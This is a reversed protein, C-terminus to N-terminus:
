ARVSVFNSLRNRVFEVSRETALERDDFSEIELLFPVDGRAEKALIAAIAPIDVDGEGIATGRVCLATVWGGTIKPMEPDTPPYMKMDKVHTTVTYPALKRAAEVPEEAVLFPNGTDFNVKLAPSDVRELVQLVEDARYDAHNELAITVGYEEAVPALKGLSASLRELQECLPPDSRWRHHSSCVCVVRIGLPVCIDRCYAEFASTSQASGNEIFCDGWSTVIELRHRDALEACSEKNRERVVVGVVSSGYEAAKMFFDELSIDGGLSHQVIGLRM